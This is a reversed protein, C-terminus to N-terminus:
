LWKRCAAREAVKANLRAPRRVIASTAIIEGKRKFACKQEDLALFNTSSFHLVAIQDRDDSRASSDATSCNVFSLRCSYAAMSLTRHSNPQTRFITANAGSSAFISVSRRLGFGLRRVVVLLADFPFKIIKALTKQSRFAPRLSSHLARCAPDGPRFDIM